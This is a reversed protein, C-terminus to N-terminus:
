AIESEIIMNTGYIDLSFNSPYTSKDEIDIKEWM